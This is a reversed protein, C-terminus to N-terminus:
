WGLFIRMFVFSIPNNLSEEHRSEAGTSPLPRGSVTWEMRFHGSPAFRYHLLKAWIKKKKRSPSGGITPSPSTPGHLQIAYEFGDLLAMFSAM